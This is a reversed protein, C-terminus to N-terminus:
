LITELREISAQWGARVRLKVGDNAIARHVLRLHTGDSMATFTVNVQSDPSREVSATAQAATQEVALEHRWTFELLENATITLYEGCLTSRRGESVGFAFRWQGGVRLDIDATEVLPPKLGFWRKIDAPETWARYVRAPPARYRGEVVVPEDGPATRLFEPSM